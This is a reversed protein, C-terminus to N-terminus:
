QLGPLPLLAVRTALAARPHPIAVGPGLDARIIRLLNLGPIRRDAPELVDGALLTKPSNASIQSWAGSDWLWLGILGFDAALEGDGNGDVDAAVMLEPDLGSLQIWAGSDWLWLGKTWFDGFVEDDGSDDVDATVMFDPNAGSM